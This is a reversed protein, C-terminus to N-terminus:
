TISSYTEDNMCMTPTSSNTFSANCLLYTLYDFYAWNNKNRNRVCQFFINFHFKSKIVKDRIRRVGERWNKLGRSM